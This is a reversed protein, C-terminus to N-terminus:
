DLAALRERRNLLYRRAAADTSLGIAITLAEHAEALRSAAALLQGRAAWYPQYDVMRKDAALPEIEALAVAPGEIEALAVARNLAVVPSGTLALLHDYLAVVALWNAAGFVRRATHASQIAAEIQYRGSPGGSNASHLLEEAIGIQQGDWLSTDQEDL